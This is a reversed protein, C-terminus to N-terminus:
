VGKSPGLGFVLNKFVRGREEYNSFLDFSACMPSLVVCDGALASQHASAVAGELTPYSEFATVDSFIKKLKERAEGYAIMKKVKKKVIDRLVSFDLNKDRGGCIMIVPKEMRELAWRGSAVTTAKSDNIYDVGSLTRVFELRHEVGKFQQFVEQAIRSPIGLIRSAELAAWYNPNSHLSVKEPSNFFSVKAKLTGALTRLQPQQYNLIAFDGEDQNEFIRAKAEFYEQIDKHRDLHNESFNLFLAVRPKFQQITELQFSSVELVAWDDPKMELVCQSFPRGINGCLFVNKGTKKLIEAILTVTTTKGNSGTVAIIPAPCFQYALEIEGVVPIGKALAWGVPVADKRVGPSLVVLDSEEVFARTHGGLEYVVDPPELWQSNEKKFDDVSKQETIRPRGGLKKVIQAVAIGSRALGIITVKKNKLDMPSQLTSAM